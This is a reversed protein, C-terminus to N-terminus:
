SKLAAETNNTENGGFINTKSTSGIVSERLAEIRRIMEKEAFIWQYLPVVNDKYSIKYKKM